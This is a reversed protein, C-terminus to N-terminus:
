VQLILKLSAQMDIYPESKTYYCTSSFIGCGTGEPNKSEDTFIAIHDEPITKLLCLLQVIYLRNFVFKIPVRDTEIQMKVAEM